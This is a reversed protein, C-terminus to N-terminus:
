MRVSMKSRLCYIASYFPVLSPCRSDRASSCKNTELWSINGRSLASHSTNHFVCKDSNAAQDLAFFFFFLFVRSFNNIEESPTITNKLGINQLTFIHRLWSHLRRDIDLCGRWPILDFHCMARVTSHGSVASCSTPPPTKLQTTVRFIRRTGGLGSGSHTNAFAANWISLVHLTDDCTRRSVIVVVQKGEILYFCGQQHPPSLDSCFLGLQSSFCRDLATWCFVSLTHRYM